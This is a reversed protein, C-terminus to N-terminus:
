GIVSKSRTKWLQTEAGETGSGAEITRRMQQSIPNIGLKRAVAVRAKGLGKQILKRRYFRQLEPPDHRVAHTGAEGWLFRLLPNGVAL